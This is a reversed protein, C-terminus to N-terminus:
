LLNSLGFGKTTDIVAPTIYKKYGTANLVMQIIRKGLASLQAEDQSQACLTQMNYKDALDIVQELDVINKVTDQVQSAVLCSRGLFYEVDVKHLCSEMVKISEKNTLDIMFCIFDIRPREAENERPLPLSTATRIAVSFPTDIDVIARALRQKGVGQCGLLLVTVANHSPAKDFADLVDLSAM